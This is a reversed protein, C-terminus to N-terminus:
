EGVHLGNDGLWDYVGKIPLAGERKSGSVDLGDKFLILTPLGYM